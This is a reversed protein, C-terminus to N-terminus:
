NNGGAKGAPPTASGSTDPAKQTDAPPPEDAAVYRRGAPANCDFFVETRPLVIGQNQVDHFAGSFSTATRGDPLTVSGHYFLSITPLPGKARMAEIQKQQTPADPPWVYFGRNLTNLAFQAGEPVASDTGMPVMFRYPQPQRTRIFRDLSYGIISDAPVDCTMAVAKGSAGAADDGGTQGGCAIFAAAAPILLIFRQLRRSEPLSM